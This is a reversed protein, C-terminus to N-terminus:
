RKGERYYNAFFQQNQEADFYHKRKIWILGDGKSIVAVDIPGGVTEAEETVKRKFSTLNVLSEAMAALEDKPMMAVVRIIPSIYAEQQMGTLATAFGTVLDNARTEMQSVLAARAPEDLGLENGMGDVFEPLAVAWFNLTEQKVNSDIGEMFTAVQESQAFPRVAAQNAASIEVAPGAQHYKLRDLAITELEFEYLRPFFDKEGYGAIVVGSHFPSTPNPQSATVLAGALEALQQRATQSLPFSEFAVDLVETTSYTDVVRQAHDEPLSPQREFSTWEAHTSGVIADAQATIDDVTLEEGDAMREELARDITGLIDRYAAYFLSQNSVLQEDPPFLPNSQDFFGLFHAAHERLTPFARDGLQERYTKVITEWPVSLFQASDYVMVAVPHYKSLAFIKNASTFIKTQGSVASDAALAVAEQNLVAIEATVFRGYDM